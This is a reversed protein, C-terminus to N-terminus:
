RKREEEEDLRLDFALSHAERQIKFVKDMFRAKGAYSPIRELSKVLGNALRELKIAADARRKSRPKGM